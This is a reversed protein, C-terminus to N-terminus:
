NPSDQTDGGESPDFLFVRMKFNRAHVVVDFTAMLRANEKMWSAKKPYLDDVVMDEVFWVRDASVEALAPDFWNFPLNRGPLYYDGMPQTSSVVLEGPRQREQIFEFAARWDPRNGNQYRYYLFDEGASTLLLVALVGLALLRGDPKLRRFLEAVAMGALILWSTLSV